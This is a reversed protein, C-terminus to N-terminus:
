CIFSGVSCVFYNRQSLQKTNQDQFHVTYSLTFHINLMKGKPPSTSLTGGAATLSSNLFSISQKVTLRNMQM